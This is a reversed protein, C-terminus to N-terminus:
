GLSEKIISFKTLNICIHFTSLCVPLLCDSFGLQAKLEPSSILEIWGIGPRGCYLRLVVTDPLM